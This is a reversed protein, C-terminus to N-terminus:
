DIIEARMVLFLMDGGIQSQEVITSKQAPIITTNNSSIKIEDPPSNTDENLIFTVASFEYNILIQKNDSIQSSNRFKVDSTFPNYSTSEQVDNTGRLRARRESKVYITKECRNEAREYMRSRTRASAIVEGHNPDNLCWLLNMVSVNEKDKESLPKVGSNELAQPDVKVLWADVIVSRYDPKEKEPEAAKKEEACVVSGMLVACFIVFIKKM